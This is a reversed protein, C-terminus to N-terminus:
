PKVEASEAPAALPSMAPAEPRTAGVISEAASIAAECEGNTPTRRAFKVLDADQMFRQIQIRLEVSLAAQDLKSLAERTTSELGDYGFRDGLYRRVVDSVRDYFEAQRQNELLGSHRADFLGEMAVEWPPRPPPPPPEPRPRKMWRAILLAALAGLALAIAAAISLQKALTWEELQRRPPPNPKPKPNPENAIPDEVVVEHPSTCLTMIEGSARAVAIPVPPLVLSNRGPKKPLPVFYLKVTTTAHEGEQKREVQPAAPGDPDPVVFGTAELAKAEPSGPESRFGTPLVNEGSGHEVELELLHAHGSIANPAIKETVKPRAKGSPIREVCMGDNKGRAKASSAPAASPASTQALLPGSLLCLAALAAAFSRAGGTM